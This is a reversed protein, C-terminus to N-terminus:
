VMCLGVQQVRNTIAFSTHAYTVIDCCVASRIRAIRVKVLIVLHRYTGAEDEIASSRDCVPALLGCMLLCSTQVMIRTISTQLM